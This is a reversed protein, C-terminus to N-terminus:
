AALGAHQPRGRADDPRDLRELRQLEQGADALRQEVLDELEVRRPRLLRDHGGRAPVVAGRAAVEPRRWLRASPMNPMSVKVRTARSSRSSRVAASSRSGAARSM